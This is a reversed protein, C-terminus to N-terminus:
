MKGVVKGYIMIDMADYEKAPYNSNIPRLVVISGNQYFRKFTTEIVVADQMIYIIGAEGEELNPQKTVLLICGDPYDPEMSDGHLEM